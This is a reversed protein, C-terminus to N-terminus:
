NGQYDLAEKASVSDQSIRTQKRALMIVCFISTPKLEAKPNIFNKPDSPFISNWHPTDM